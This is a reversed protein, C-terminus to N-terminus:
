EWTFNYLSLFWVLCRKLKLNSNPGDSVRVYSCKQLTLLSLSEMLGANHFPGPSNLDSANSSLECSNTCFFYNVGNTVSPWHWPSVLVRFTVDRGGGRGGGMCHQWTPFSPNDYWLSVIKISIITLVSIVGTTHGWYQTIWPSKRSARRLLIKTCSTTSPHHSKADATQCRHESSLQKLQLTEKSGASWLKSACLWM